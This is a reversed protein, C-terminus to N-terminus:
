TLLGTINNLENNDRTTRRIYMFSGMPLPKIAKCCYILWSLQNELNNQGM